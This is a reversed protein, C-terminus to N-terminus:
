EKAIDRTYHQMKVFQRVYHLRKKSITLGNVNCIGLCGTKAIKVINSCGKDTLHKNDSIDFHELPMYAVLSDALLPLNADKINTDSLNM